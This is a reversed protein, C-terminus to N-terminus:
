MGWYAVPTMFAAEHGDRVRRKEGMSEWADLKGKERMREAEKMRKQVGKEREKRAGLSAKHEVLM